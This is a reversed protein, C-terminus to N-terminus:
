VWRWVCLHGTEQAKPNQRRAHQRSYRLAETRSGFRNVRPGSEDELEEPREVADPTINDPVTTNWCIIQWEHSGKVDSAPVQAAFHPLSAALQHTQNAM